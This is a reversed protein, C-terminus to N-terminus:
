FIFKSFSLMGNEQTRESIVNSYPGAGIITYARVQIYYAVNQELPRLTVNLNPFNVEINELMPVESFTTQNYEM